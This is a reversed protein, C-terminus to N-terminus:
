WADDSNILALYKGTARRILENTIIAAGRNTPHAIFRIRGDEVTRVKEATSDSSGDDAILFEFDGFSQALVSRISEVVFPAHNYTPMIVSVNAGM